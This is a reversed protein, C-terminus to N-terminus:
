RSREARPEPLREEGPGDEEDLTRDVGGHELLDRAHLAGLQERV